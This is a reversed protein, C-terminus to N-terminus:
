GQSFKVTTEKVKTGFNLSSGGYKVTRTSANRPRKLIRAIADDREIIDWPTDHHTVKAFWSPAGDFLRRDAWREADQPKSFRKSLKELTGDEKERMCVMGTAADIVTVHFHKESNVSPSGAKEISEEAKIRDLELVHAFVADRIENLAPTPLLAGNDLKEVIPATVYAVEGTLLYERYGDIFGKASMAAKTNTKALFGRATMKRETTM